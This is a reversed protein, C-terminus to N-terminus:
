TSATCRWGRRRTPRSWTSAPPLAESRDVVSINDLGLFGGEFVNKGRHDRKNVWWAFNILLKHFVRELFVRDGVGRQRREIKYVQYTAWAHVPPNLDSLEWEYAPVQGNPHQYWEKVMLKLQTKAQDIDVSALAVAHFALDWAAFWPYEWTDPMSIVDAVSVHRWDANRGETRSEPQPLGDGRLWVDVDYHYFQLSWLLGASAQRHIARRDDSVNPGQVALYYADAEERRLEIIEAAGSFPEAQPEPTLRLLLRVSGRAPVVYRQWVAAKSGRRRPNARRADGGVVVEHFADKVYPPRSRAGFLREPNTENNTFLLEPEGEAYLYYDGIEKQTARMAVFPADEGDAKAVAPPVPAARGALAQIEPALEGTKGWSWTNRFWLHPLLHLPAADPGRNHATIAMLLDGPGRKAYEVVVDFYRSDDFAGLDALEVERDGTGRAKAADLLERYPFARQPYKYLYRLYSFTPTADEFYYVEKVDEGHNGEPGTLGFLREKLFPDKGNWLAVAFHVLGRNDSFGLLGDEGWRYTRFCADEHSLYGWADGNESYDERVTGWQRESLYTGWRRWKKGALAEDLRVQEATKRKGRTAMPPMTCGTGFVGSEGAVGTIAM